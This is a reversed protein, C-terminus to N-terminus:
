ARVRGNEAAQQVAYAVVDPLTMGAAAMMSPFRSHPTFGPITNVENFVLQGEPTLFMDVRAFGECGLARYIVRATQKIRETTEEGVRAPVHIRATLLNYKETYDFYDGALEIEDPEGTILTDNGMVACGVEFGPIAQEIIVEDDFRLAKEIAAPLGDRDTVRSVGYSSGARVPKVFLPWGLADARATVGSRDFGGRVTFAAPVAIGAAAALIHARYKDMCLASALTGCGALPLGALECLGQVTGDEGFKGHLVPFVCDVAVREPVGGRFVLLCSDARSPYLAAPACQARLWHDAEIQDADADTWFWDGRRTIGAKVTEFRGEMARLVGAASALSVEYESSCGGFLVLVKM